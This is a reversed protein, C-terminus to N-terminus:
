IRIYLGTDHLFPLVAKSILKHKDNYGFLSTVSFAEVGLGALKFFSYMEKQGISEVNCSFMGSQRLVGVNVCALFM